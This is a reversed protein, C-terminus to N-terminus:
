KILKEVANKINILSEYALNADEVTRKDDFDSPYRASITYENLLVVDDFLSKLEEAYRKSINLLYVLDHTKIILQNNYLIFAKLYKEAAQQCLYCFTDEIGEIGEKNILEIVKLDQQARQLWKKYDTSDVM